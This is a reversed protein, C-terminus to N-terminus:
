PVRKSQLIVTTRETQNSDSKLEETLLNYTLKSGHITDGNQTLSANNLLEVKEHQPYYKIIKAEGAGPKAPNANSKFKAPNGTATMVNIKNNADRQIKLNDAHLTRAGQIVVVNGTYTAIGSKQDFNATKSQIEIPEKTEPVALCISCASCILSIQLIFQILKTM